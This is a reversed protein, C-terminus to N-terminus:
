SAKLFSFGRQLPPWFWLFHEAALRLVQEERRVGTRQHVFLGIEGQFTICNLAVVIAGFLM